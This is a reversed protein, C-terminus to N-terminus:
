LLYGIRNNIIHIEHFPYRQSTGDTILDCETDYCNLHYSLKWLIVPIEKEIAERMLPKVEMTTVNSAMLTKLFFSRWHRQASNKPLLLLLLLPLLLLPWSIMNVVWFISYTLFDAKIKICMSWCLVFWIYKEKCSLLKLIHSM